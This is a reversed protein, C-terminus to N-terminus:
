VAQVQRNKLLATCNALRAVLILQSTRSNSPLGSFLRTLPEDLKM